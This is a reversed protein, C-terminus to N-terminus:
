RAPRGGMHGGHLGKREDDHEPGDEEGPRQALRDPDLDAVFVKQLMHWDEPHQTIAAEFVRALQQIMFTAKDERDGDSPVAIEPHIRACWYPGRYWLTVPM